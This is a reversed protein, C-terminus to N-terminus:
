SFIVNEQRSYALRLGMIFQITRSQDQIILQPESDSGAYILTQRVRNLRDAIQECDQWDIEGDCDSHRLLIHLADEKLCEWKIPLREEISKIAKMVLSDAEVPGVYFTPFYGQPSFFGDMLELPPLGAAHAISKRWEHFRGYSGHWCDHSTDLGM